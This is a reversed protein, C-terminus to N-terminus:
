KGGRGIGFPDFFLRMMQQMQEVVMQQSQRVAQEYHTRDVDGECEETVLKGDEYRTEKRRVHATGGQATIETYSYRFGFGSPQRVAPPKQQEEEILRLFNQRLRDLERTM